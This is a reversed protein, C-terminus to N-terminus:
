SIWGKLYCRWVVLQRTGLTRNQSSFTPLRLQIGLNKTQEMLTRETSNLDDNTKDEGKGDGDGDDGGEDKKGEASAEEGEVIISILFLKLNMEYLREHPIKSADKVAM